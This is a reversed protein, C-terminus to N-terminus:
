KQLAVLVLVARVLQVRQDGVQGDGGELACLCDIHVVVAALGM